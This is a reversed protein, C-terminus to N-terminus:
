EEEAITEEVAEEAVEEEVPALGEFYPAYAKLWQNIAESLGNSTMTAGTIADIKNDIVESGDAEKPSGGKM